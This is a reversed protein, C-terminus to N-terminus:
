NKFYLLYSSALQVPNAFRVRCLIRCVAFLPTVRVSWRDVMQAGREHSQIWLHLILFQFVQIQNLISGLNPNAFRSRSQDSKLGLADMSQFYDHDFVIASLGWSPTGKLGRHLFPIRLWGVLPLVIQILELYHVNTLHFCRDFLHQDFFRSEEDFLSSWLDSM